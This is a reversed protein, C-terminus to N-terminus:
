RLVTVSLLRSFRGIIAVQRVSRTDRDLIGAPLFASATGILIAVAISRLSFMAMIHARSLKRVM